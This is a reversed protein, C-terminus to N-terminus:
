HLSEPSLLPHELIVCEAVNPLIRALKNLLHFACRCLLTKEACLIGSFNVTLFDEMGAVLNIKTLDVVPMKVRSMRTKLKEIVVKSASVATVSAVRQKILWLM